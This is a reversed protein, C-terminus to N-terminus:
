IIAQKARFSSRVLPNSEVHSFGLNYAFKSLAAFEYPTVYRILKAHKLSPRLYQGITLFDVSINKLDILSEKIETLSEGLGLMLGSKIKIHPYTKKAYKLVNLSRDYNSNPRIKLSLRRTTEINHNFVNPNEGLVTDICAHKGLFDPTLVEISSNPCKKLVTNICKAFHEAGYDKLDDRSVSTIIIHSLGMIKVSHALNNPENQDLPAPFKATKIACFRCARTCKNGMIMFTATKKQWCYAINPCAASYCVTNLNNNKVLQSIRKYNEGYPTKILLWAPKKLYQKSIKEM